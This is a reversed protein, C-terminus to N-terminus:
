PVENALSSLTTRQQLSLRFAPPWPFSPTEWLSANGKSEWLVIKLLFNKRKTHLYWLCFWHYQSSNLPPLSTFPSPHILLLSSDKILVHLSMCAKKWERSSDTRSKSLAWLLQPTLLDKKTFSKADRCLRWMHPYIISTGLVIYCSLCLSLLYIFRMCFVMHLKQIQPALQVASLSELESKDSNQKRRHKNFM